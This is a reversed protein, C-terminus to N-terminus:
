RKIYLLEVKENKADDLAIKSEVKWKRKSLKKEYLDNPYTSIIIQSKSKNSMDLLDIHDQKTFEHKYVNKAKRSEEPYPPDIYLLIKKSDAKKMLKRFDLKHIQTGRFRNICAYLHRLRTLRMGPNNGGNENHIVKVLNPKINKKSFDYSRHLWTKIYFKYAITVPDDTSKKIFADMLFNVDYVTYKIKRILETAWKRNQMVQFLIIIDEDIDNLIEVKSREKRLFVAASGTFPEIYTKHQIENIYSIIWPALRWKSGFYRFLPADVKDGKEKRLIAKRM